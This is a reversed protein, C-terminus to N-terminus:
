ARRVVDERYPTVGPELERDGVKSGNIRLEFFGPAAVYARARVIKGRLDVERRFLPCPALKELTAMNAGEAKARGDLPVQSSPKGTGRRLFNEKIVPVTTMSFGCHAADNNVPVIESAKIWPASWDAPELLGVELHAPESWGTEKGDRDWKECAM